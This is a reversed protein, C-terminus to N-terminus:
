DKLGTTTTGGEEEGEGSSCSACANEDHGNEGSVNHLCYPRVAFCIQARALKGESKKLGRRVKHGSALIEM